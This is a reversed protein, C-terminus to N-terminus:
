PFDCRKLVFIWTWYIHKYVLPNGVLFDIITAYQLKMIDIYIYIYNHIYIYIYWWLIRRSQAVELLVNQANNMYLDPQGGFFLVPEPVSWRQLAVVSRAKADQETSSSGSSWRDNEPLTYCFWLWMLCFVNLEQSQQTRECETSVDMGVTEPQDEPLEVKAIRFNCRCVPKWIIHKEINPSYIPIDQFIAHM